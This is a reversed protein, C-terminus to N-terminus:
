IFQLLSWISSLVKFDSNFFAFSFLALIFCSARSMFVFSFVLISSSLHWISSLLWSCSLNNFLSTSWSVLDLTVLSFLFIKFTFSFILRLTQKINTKLLFSLLFTKMTHTHRKLSSKDYPKWYVM